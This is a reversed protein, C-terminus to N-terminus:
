LDYIRLGRLPPSISFGGCMLSFFSGSSMTPISLPVRLYRVKRVNAELCAISWVTYAVVCGLLTFAYRHRLRDTLYATAVCFVTAM